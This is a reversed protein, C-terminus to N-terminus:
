SLPPHDVGMQLLEQNFIVMEGHNEFFYTMDSPPIITQYPKIKRKANSPTTEKKEDYATLSWTKGDYHLFERANAGIAYVDNKSSGAFQTIYNKSKKVPPRKRGPGSMEM